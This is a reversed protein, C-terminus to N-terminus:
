NKLKETIIKKTDKYASDVAIFMFLQVIISLVYFGIAVYINIKITDDFYEMFLIGLYILAYLVLLVTTIDDFSRSVEKSKKTDIDTGRKGWKSIFWVTGLLLLPVICWYLNFLFKEGTVILLIVIGILLINSIIQISNFYKIKEEM